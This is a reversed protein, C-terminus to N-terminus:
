SRRILYVGARADDAWVVRGELICGDPTAISILEDVVISHVRNLGFGAESMDVLVGLQVRSGQLVLVSINIERRSSLRREVWQKAREYVSQTDANGVGDLSSNPRSSNRFM